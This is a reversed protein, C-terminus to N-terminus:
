CILHQNKATPSICGERPQLWLVPIRHDRIHQDTAFHLPKAVSPRMAAM